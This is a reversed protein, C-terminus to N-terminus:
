PDTCSLNTIVYGGRHTANLNTPHVSVQVDVGRSSLVGLNTCGLEGSAASPPCCVGPADFALSTGWGTATSRPNDMKLKCFEDADIQDCGIPGGGWNCSGNCYWQNIRAFDYRCTRADLPVVGVPGPPPDGEETRAVVRDGCVAAGGVCMGGVCRNPMPCPAFCTGCHNPDSSFDVCVGNCWTGTPCDLVCTGNICEQGSACRQNCGGCNEADFRWDVCNGNCLLTDPPCVDRCLGDVCALGGGLCQYGCGGCNFPDSSPDVCEGDCVLGECFGVCLGNSCYQSPSCRFGCGGCNAPDSAFDVCVDGCQGTECRRTCTGNSCVSGSGCAFGCGGCNDQSFRLDVCQGNCSTTPPQCGQTEVCRGGSCREDSDCQEFCRGCHRPDSSVDVCDDGCTVDECVAGAGAEGGIMKVSKGGCATACVAVGFSVLALYRHVWM